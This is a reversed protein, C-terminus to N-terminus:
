DEGSSSLAAATGRRAAGGAQRLAAILKAIRAAEKPTRAASYDALLKQMKPSALGKAGGYAITAGIGANRLKEAFSADEGASNWGTLGGAGLLGVAAATQFIGQRSKFPALAKTAQIASDELGEAGKKGASLALQRFGFEKGVAKNATSTLASWNKWRGKNKLFNAGIDEGTANLQGSLETGVKSDIGKAIGRLRLKAASELRGGPTESALQNVAQQFDMLDRGKIPTGATPIVISSGARAKIADAIDQPVNFGTLTSDNVDKFAKEWLDKAEVLAEKMPTGKEIISNVEVGEPLAQDLLRGRAGQVAETYQGRLKQGGGPLNAVIGEYGQRLLADEPLAQSAPIHMKALSKDLGKVGPNRALYDERALNTSRMLDAAEDSIKPRLSSIGEVAGSMLGGAAGGIGASKWGEGVDSTAAGSGAGELAAALIRGGRGVGQAVSPSSAARSANLAASGGSVLGRAALGIPATAAIEGVVKGAMGAGTSTLDAELRKREKIADETYRGSELGLAKPLVLNGVRDWTGQLGAGIGARLREGTGMDATARYGEADKAINAKSQELAGMRKDRADMEDLYKMYQDYEARTGSM